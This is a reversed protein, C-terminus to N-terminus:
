NTKLRVVEVTLTMWARSLREQWRAHRKREGDKTIREGKHVKLDKIHHSSTKGFVHIEMLEIRVLNRAQWRKQPAPQWRKM